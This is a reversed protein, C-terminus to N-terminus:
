GGPSSTLLVQEKTFSGDYNRKDISNCVLTEVKGANESESRWVKGGDSSRYHM